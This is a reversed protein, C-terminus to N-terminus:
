MYANKMSQNTCVFGNWLVSAMCRSFYRHIMYAEYWYVYMVPIVEQPPEPSRRVGDSQWTWLLIWRARQLEMDAQKCYIEALLYSADVLVWCIEKEKCTHKLIFCDDSLVYLHCFCCGDFLSASSDLVLFTCIAGITQFLPKSSWFKPQWILALAITMVISNWM